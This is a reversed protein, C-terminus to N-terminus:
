KPNRNIITEIKDNYKKFFDPYPINLNDMIYKLTKRLIKAESSPNYLNNIKESLSNRRDTDAFYQYKTYDFDIIRGDKYEYLPFNYWTEQEKIAFYRSEIKNTEKGDKDKKYVIRMTDKIFKDDDPIEIIVDCYPRERDGMGNIIDHEIGDEFTMKKLEVYLKM